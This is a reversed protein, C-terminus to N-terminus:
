AQMTLILECREALEKENSPIFPMSDINRTLTTSTADMDFWVTYYGKDNKHLPFANSNLREQVLKAVDIESITLGTSFAKSEALIEGNEAIMNHGSYVYDTTSEGAGINSFVYGCTLQISQAEILRHLYTTRGVQENNASLCVVINAGAMAHSASLPLPSFFDEEFGVSFTFEKMGECIYVQHPGFLTEEMSIAYLADSYVTNQEPASTFQRHSTLITKPVISLVNGKQVTVACNYLKGQHILPMGIIGISNLSNSEEVLKKLGTLAGDLLTKHLFLDGCTSGTLVLEPFAVLHCGLADAEKWLSLVAETNYACDAVRIEPTAAAVKIFGYNM